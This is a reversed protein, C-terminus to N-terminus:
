RLGQHGFGAERKGSVFTLSNAVEFAKRVEEAEEHSKVYGSYGDENVSTWFEEWKHKIESMISDDNM